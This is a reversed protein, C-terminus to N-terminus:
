CNGHGGLKVVKEQPGETVRCLRRPPWIAGTSFWQQVNDLTILHLPKRMMHCILVKLGVSLNGLNRNRINVCRLAVGSSEEHIHWRRSFLRLCSKWLSPVRDGPNNRRTAWFIRVNRLLMGGGDEHYVLYYIPEAQSRSRARRGCDNSVSMFVWRSMNNSEKPCPNGVTIYTM